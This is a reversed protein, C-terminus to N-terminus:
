NWAQYIREGKPGRVYKGTTKRYGPPPKGEHERIAEPSPPPKGAAEAQAAPSAAVAPAVTPHERAYQDQERARTEQAGHTERERKFKGGERERKIRAEGETLTMQNQTRRAAFNSAITDKRRSNTGSTLVGGRNAANTGARYVGPESRTIESEQYGVNAKLNTESESLSAEEFGEQLGIDAVTQNYVAEPDYAM